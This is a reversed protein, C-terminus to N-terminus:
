TSVSSLFLAPKFSWVQQEAEAFVDSTKASRVGMSELSNEWRSRQMKEVPLKGPRLPVEAPQSLDATAFVSALSPLLDQIAISGGELAVEAPLRNSSDVSACIASLVGRLEAAPIGAGALHTIGGKRPGLPSRLTTHRTGKGKEISELWIRAIASLQEAPSLYGQEHLIPSLRSESMASAQQRFYDTTLALDYSIDGWRDVVQRVSEVQLGPLNRLDSILSLYGLAASRHNAELAARTQEAPLRVVVVGGGASLLQEARRVIQGKVGRRGEDDVLSQFSIDLWYPGLSSLHLRGGLFFPRSDSEVPTHPVLVGRTGWDAIVEMPQPAWTPMGLASPIHGGISSVDMFGQHERSRFLRAGEEGAHEALYALPSALCLGVNLQKMPSLFAQTAEGKWYRARPGDILLTVEQKALHLGSALEALFLDSCDEPLGAAEVVLVISVSGAM